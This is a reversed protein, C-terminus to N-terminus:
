IVIIYLASANYPPHSEPMLWDYCGRRDLKLLFPLKLKKNGAYIDLLPQEVMLVTVISKNDLFVLIYLVM